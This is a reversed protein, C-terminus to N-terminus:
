LAFTQAVNTIKMTPIFVDTMMSDESLVAPCPTVSVTETNGPVEERWHWHLVDCHHPDLCLRAINLETKPLALVLRIQVTDYRRWVGLVLLHGDAPDPAVAVPM